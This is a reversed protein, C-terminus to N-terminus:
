EVGLASFRNGIDSFIESSETVESESKNLDRLKEKSKSKKGKLKTVNETVADKVITVVAKMNVTLEEEVEDPLPVNRLQHIGTSVNYIFTGNFLDCIRPFSFVNDLLKNLALSAYAIAQLVSFSHVTLHDFKKVNTKMAEQMYFVPSLALACKYFSRQREDDCKLLLSELKKSSREGGTRPDVRSLVLRCLMVAKVM